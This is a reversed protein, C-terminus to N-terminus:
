EQHGETPLKTAANPCNRTAATMDWRRTPCTEHGTVQPFAQGVEKKQLYSSLVVPLDAPLPDTLCRAAESGTWLWATAPPSGILTTYVRRLSAHLHLPSAPWSAVLSAGTLRRPAPASPTPRPRRRVSRAVPLRGRAQADPTPGIEGADGPGRPLPIPPAQGPPGPRAGDQRPAPDVPVPEVRHGRRPAM